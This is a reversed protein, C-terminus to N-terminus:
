RRKKSPLFWFAERWGNFEGKNNEIYHLVEGHKEARWLATYVISRFRIPTDYNSVFEEVLETTSVARKKKKIYLICKDLVSLDNSYMDSIALPSLDLGLGRLAARRQKLTYRSKTAKLNM